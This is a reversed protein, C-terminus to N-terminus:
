VHYVEQIRPLLPGTTGDNWGALFLSYCLTTFQIRARVRHTNTKVVSPAATEATTARGKMEINELGDDPEVTSM